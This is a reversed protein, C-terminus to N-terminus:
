RLLHVGPLKAKIEQFSLLNGGEPKVEIGLLCLSPFLCCGESRKRAIQAEKKM